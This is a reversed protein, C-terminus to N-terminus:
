RGRGPRRRDGRQLRRGPGQARRRGPAPRLVCRLEDLMELTGDTSGDVSVVVEFGPSSARSRRARAAGAAAGRPASPDPDRRQREPLEAMPASPPPRSRRRTSSTLRERGPRRATTASPSPAPASPRARAPTGTTGSCRRRDRRRGRRRRRRRGAAAGRDFATFGEAGRTTTVVAKGAAIAQLVKMRMGGGTRVPALSSPRRRSTLARDSPADAVVEVAREPWRAADRRPARHRRHAPDGGPWRALLAPMIERALWLAADRNPPHAFNGVFLM